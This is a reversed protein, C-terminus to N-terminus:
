ISSGSKEGPEQTPPLGPESFRLSGSSYTTGFTKVLQAVQSIASRVEDATLAGLPHIFTAYVVGQSTAYRGDLATYFNAELMRRRQQGSLSGEEVIPAVIRMRDHEVSTLLAMTVQHLSFTWQGPHGELTDAHAELIGQLKGLTMAMRTPPECPVQRPVSACGLLPLAALATSALVVVRTFM